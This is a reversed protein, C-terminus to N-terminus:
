RDSGLAKLIPPPMPRFHSMHEESVVWVVVRCGDLLEPERLLTRFAETTQGLDWKTRILLNMEQIWMQQFHIVFSNGILLVPSKPDEAPERGDPFTVHDVTRTQVPEVLKRQDATLHAWGDMRAMEFERVSSPVLQIDYPSPSVKVIPPRTRAEAGFGYRRIRDAVVRAMVRMGRPAWHTDATNYLYEPETVPERRFLPLGDVVEVGDDLLELLTRRVHPGVIRDPPCPDVFQDVYVETMKPVPVFILDIGRERLWRHAAVVPREKRFADLGADDYLYLLNGLPKVELLPFGKKGELVREMGKLWPEKALDVPTPNDIKAKLAARYPATERQWRDWDGGAAEQCQATIAAATDRIALARAEGAAPEAPPRAPRLAYIAGAIVLVAPPLWLVTRVFVSRRASRDNGM